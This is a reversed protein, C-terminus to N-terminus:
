REDEALWSKIIDVVQEPKETAYKKIEKELHSKQNQVEFDIPTFVEPEKPILSDDILTDLIQEDEEKKKKRFKRLLFVVLALVILGAIVGLAIYINRKAAAQKAELKEEAEKIADAETTDFQAGLISVEDGRVADFGIANQVAKQYQQQEAESLKGNIVVSATLRKVEGPAAITQIQNKGSDYNTKQSEELSNTSSNDNVIENQMNNDVPSESVDGSSTANEKRTSEQSVIVKNPDVTTQTKQTSDFDLNANVTANVKGKGFIPELLNIIQKKLKDEYAAELSHQKSVAEDDVENEDKFLDETLFNAKQDTVVINEEPINECSKSIVAVISKVQDKSLEEGDVIKLTVSAKGPQKEKVFVSDTAPTIHVQAKEIQEFSEIVRGLEGELMRQKKIKFEEDTMGFSNSNDMLEYGTKGSTLDPSLKLYLQDVKDKPVSISNTSSDSKYEIGEEDLKSMVIKADKPELETFLVRYKNSQTYVIASIVAIIVALVSVLLIIKIKKSLGKFKELLEKFKKSLKEM